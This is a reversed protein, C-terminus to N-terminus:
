IKVKEGNSRYCALVVKLAKTGEDIGIPFDTNSSICEYYDKILKYHGLGWYDKSEFGHSETESIKMDDIICTNGIIEAKHGKADFKINIPYNKSAATTAFFITKTGEKTEWYCDATDEVDIINPLHRNSLCATVYEPMETFWIMLDLTHLAQNILVGGGETIIRGRWKSSIYYDADRSWFVTGIINNIKQDTLYKKMAINASLYRNQFCIGLKAKTKNLCCRIQEIEEVNICLPKECLANVGRELASIVMERHLYHPTCIHVVDIGCDLLKRYDDFILTNQCYKEKLSNANSLNTDCIAKIEIDLKNLVAAHVGSIAGCGIIGAKM